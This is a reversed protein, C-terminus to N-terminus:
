SDTYGSIIIDKKSTRGQLDEISLTMEQSEKTQIIDKFSFKKKTPTSGEEWVLKNDTRSGDLRLRENVLEQDVYQNTHIEGTIIVQTEKDNRIKNQKINAINIELPRTRFPIYAERNDRGGLVKDIDINIAHQQDYHLIHEKQFVVTTSDVWKWFGKIAPMIRLGAVSSTDISHGKRFRITIEHDIDVLEVPHQIIYQDLIAIQEVTIENPLVRDCAITATLLLFILLYKM